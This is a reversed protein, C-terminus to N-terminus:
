MVPGWCCGGTCAHSKCSCFSECVQMWLTVNDGMDTTPNARRYAAPNRALLTELFALDAADQTRVAFVVQSLMIATGTQLQSPRSIRQCCAHMRYSMVHLVPWWDHKKCQMNENQQLDPCVFTCAEHLIGGNSALNRELYANLIRMYRRRGYFVLAGVQLYTEVLFAHLSAQVHQMAMMDAIEIAPPSRGHGSAWSAVSPMHMCLSM